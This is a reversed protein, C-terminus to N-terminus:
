ARAPHAAVHCAHVRPWGRHRAWASLDFKKNSVARATARLKCNSVPSDLLAVKKWRSGGNERREERGGSERKGARKEGGKAPGEYNLRGVRSGGEEDGPCPRRRLNRSFSALCSNNHWALHTEEKEGRIQEGVHKEGRGILQGHGSFGYPRGTDTKEGTGTAPKEPGAVRQDRSSWLNM